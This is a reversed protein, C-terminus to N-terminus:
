KDLFLFLIVASPDKLRLAFRELVRFRYNENIDKQNFAAAVDLDKGAGDLDLSGRVLDMSNGSLSVLVGTFLINADAPSIGGPVKTKDPLGLTKGDFPPVTATGYVGAKVIHSIPEVPTVLTTPLATHLDAYPVTNLVLAYHEYFGFEQLTTFAQAVGDLSNESYRLPTQSVPHVQVIQSAPLAISGDPAINLLGLDLHQALATDRAQVQGNKFFPSNAFGNGGNLVITDEAQALINASRISLSIGTSCRQGSAMAVEERSEDEMQAPTLRFEVWFENVRTTQSEDVSLAQDPAPAPPPPPPGPVIVIDSPVTTVKKPVHVLPLIKAAVRTLTMEDTVAADIRKWVDEGWPIQDKGRNKNASPISAPTTM